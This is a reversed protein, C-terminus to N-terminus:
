VEGDCNEKEVQMWTRTKIVKMLEFKLGEDVKTHSSIKSIYRITSRAFNESILGLRDFIRVLTGGEGMGASGTEVMECVTKESFAEEIGRRILPEKGDSILKELVREAVEGRNASCLHLILEAWERTFEKLACSCWLLDDEVM